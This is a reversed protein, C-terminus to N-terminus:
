LIGINREEIAIRACTTLKHLFSIKPSRHTVKCPWHFFCTRAGCDGLRCCPKNLSGRAAAWTLLACEKKCCARVSKASTRLLRMAFLGRKCAISAVLRMSHKQCPPSRENGCISCFPCAQSCLGAIQLHSNGMFANHVVLLTQDLLPLGASEPDHVQTVQSWMEISRTYIGLTSTGNVGEWQSMHAHREDASDGLWGRCPRPCPFYINNRLRCSCAKMQLPLVIVRSMHRM